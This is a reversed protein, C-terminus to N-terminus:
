EVSRIESLPWIVARVKGILMDKSIIGVDAYRSDHSNYRNDGVVFYEDEGLTYPEYDNLSAPMYNDPDIADIIENGDDDIYKVYTVANERWVTDGEVAVVRKVFYTAHKIGFTTDYRNPYNCIVVDGRDAGSLKVDLVSVFLREGNFLTDNMSNGDVKILTFLFTRILFVIVIAVLLSVVWDRIEKGVKKKREKAAQFPSPEPNDYESNSNVNGIDGNSEINTEDNLGM